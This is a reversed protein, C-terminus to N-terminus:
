ICWMVVCWVTVCGCPHVPLSAPKEVVLVNDDDGCVIRIPEALVPPEHRHVRQTMRDNLRLVYSPDVLKGNVKIDGCAFAAVYDEKSIYPFESLFIDLAERKEWRGKVKMPYVFEYPIVHRWGGHIVYMDSTRESAGSAGALEGIIPVTPTAHRRRPPKTGGGGGGGGDDGDTAVSHNAGGDAKRKRQDQM